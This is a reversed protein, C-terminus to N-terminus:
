ETLKRNEGFPLLTASERDAILVTLVVLLVIRSLARQASRLSVYFRFCSFYIRFHIYSILIPETYACYLHTDSRTESRTEPREASNIPRHGPCLVGASRAFGEMLVHFYFWIGLRM